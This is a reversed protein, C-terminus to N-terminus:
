VEAFVVGGPDHSPGSRQLEHGSGTIGVGVLIEPQKGVDDTSAEPFAKCIQQAPTEKIGSPHLGGEEGGVGAGEGVTRFTVLAIDGATKARRFVVQDPRSVRAYGGAEIVHNGPLPEGVGPAVIGCRDIPSQSRLRGESIPGGGGIAKAQSTSSFEVSAERTVAAGQPTPTAVSEIACRFPDGDDDQEIMERVGCGCSELEECRRDAGPSRLRGCRRRNRGVQDAVPQLRLCPEQDPDSLVRFALNANSKAM